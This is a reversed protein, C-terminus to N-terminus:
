ISKQLSKLLHTVEYLPLGVIGSYSGEIHFIFRAARGQIAYGGAKDGPEGTDWYAQIEDETIDGFTVRSVNLSEHRSEETILCVATAVEHTKGSLRRLMSIGHDRDTPKGMLEGELVVVTDAALVPLSPRGNARLRKSVDLAKERALRSVYDIPSEREKRIESIDAPCVEYSVDIQDLLQQRRPSASALYVKM